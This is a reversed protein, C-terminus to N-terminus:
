KGNVVFSQPRSNGYEERVFYIGPAFDNVRVVTQNGQVPIMKIVKGNINTIIYTTNVPALDNRRIYLIDSAPNPFLQFASESVSENRISTIGPIHVRLYATANPRLPFSFVSDTITVTTSTFNNRFPYLYATATQRTYGANILSDYVPIVNNQISDVIILEGSHQGTIGTLQLTVTRGNRFVSDSYQYYPILQNIATTLPTTAPLQILGRYISDLLTESALGENILDNTNFNMTYLLRATAESVPPLQYAAVVVQLTDQHSSAAALLNTSDSYNVPIRAGQLRNLLQMSKWAPKHLSAWSVVGYDNHFETASSDFDQWAAVSQASAGYAQLLITYYSMYGSSYETDRLPTALNWESVMLPVLGHGSSILKQRLFTMEQPIAHAVVDFKHWSIFDLPTGWSVCSDILNAIITQNLQTQSLTGLPPISGFISTFQSVAPGGVRVNPHATKIATYSRHFFEFYQQPTGQWYFNDPENWIEYDIDLGWQVSMKQVVSDLLEAWVTYNAPPHGHHVNWSPDGAGPIPATNSSSSLWLPMKLIPMIIKHCHQSLTITGPRMAELVTMADAVSNVGAWNIATEINYIRVADYHIGSNYFDMGGANTKPSYNVSATYCVPVNGAVQFPNIRLQQANASQIAAVITFIFLLLKKM